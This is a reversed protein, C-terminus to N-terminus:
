TSTRGAGCGRCSELLGRPGGRPRTEWGASRGTRIRGRRCARSRCGPTRPCGPCFDRRPIRRRADTAEARAEPSLARFAEANALAADRFRARVRDGPTRAARTGFAGWGDRTGEVPGPGTTADGDSDLTEAGTRAELATPFLRAIPAHMWADDADEADDDSMEMEARNLAMADPLSFVRTEDEFPDPAAPVLAFGPAPPVAATAPTRLVRVERAPLDPTARPAFARTEPSICARRMSAVLDSIDAPTVPTVQVRRRDGLLTKGAAAFPCHRRLAEVLGAPPARNRPTVKKWLDDIRYAKSAGHGGGKNKNKKGRSSALEAALARLRHLHRRREADTADRRDGRARRAPCPVLAVCVHGPDDGEGEVM